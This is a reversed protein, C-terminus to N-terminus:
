DIVDGGDKFFKSQATPDLKKFETRQMIKEGAKKEKSGTSGSGPIQSNRVLDPRGTLFKTMGDKLDIKDVGEIFIPNDNDDLDFKGQQILSEIVIDAAVIKDKYEPLVKGRITAIKLRKASEQAAADKAALEKKLKDFERRLEAAEGQAKKGTTAGESASKIKEQLAEIAVELDDTGEIGQAKLIKDLAIKHKRLGEAEHNVKNHKEIGIKKETEVLAVVDGYADSIKNEEFLKKLDELSRAM